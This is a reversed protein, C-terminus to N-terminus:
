CDGTLVRWGQLKVSPGAGIKKVAIYKNIFHLRRIRLGMTNKQVM